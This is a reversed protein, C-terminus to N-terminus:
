PIDDWVPLGARRRAVAHLSLPAAAVVRPPRYVFYRGGQTGALRQISCARRLDPSIRVPLCEPDDDEITQCRAPAPHRPASPLSHGGASLAHSLGRGILEPFLAQPGPCPSPRGAPRRSRYAASARPRWSSGRRWIRRRGAAEQELNAVCPGTLSPDLAHRGPKLTESNQMDTRYQLESNLNAICELWSVGMTMVPSDLLSIVNSYSRSQMCFLIDDGPPRSHRRCPPGIISRPSPM